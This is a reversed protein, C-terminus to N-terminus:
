MRNLIRIEDIQTNYLIKIKKRRKSTRISELYEIVISM